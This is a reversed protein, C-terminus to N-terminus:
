AAPQIRVFESVSCKAGRQSPTSLAAVAAAFHVGRTAADVTVLPGIPRPRPIANARVVQKRVLTVPDGVGSRDHFDLHVLVIANNDRLVNVAGHITTQANIWPNDLALNDTHRCM